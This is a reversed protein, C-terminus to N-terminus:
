PRYEYAGVDPAAGRPAGDKDVMLDPVATGRRIVSAIPQSLHLDGDGDVSRFWDASADTLNTLVAASAGNRGALRGNTLNNMVVVGTTVPFRWEIASSRFGVTSIVTNNVVATGCVAELAIGVDIGYQSAAARRDNALITNNRIRGGYHGRNHEGDCVGDTYNRWRTGDYRGLGLGIGRASNIIQNGEIVTDRSGTWVHIAHESLGRECWFGSITNYVFRWARSQHADIGGTYCGDGFRRDVRARGADTLEIRSCAVEGDDTYAQSDPAFPRGDQNPNVKIAQEGPDIMTVNYIRTNRTERGRTQVHILHDRANSLTLDAITVGSAVISVLEPVRADRTPGTEAAVGEGHELQRGDLGASGDIVVRRPDHSLGQQASLSRM